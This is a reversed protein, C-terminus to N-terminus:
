VVELANLFKMHTKLTPTEVSLSFPHKDNILNLTYCEEEKEDFKLLEVLEQDDFYKMM